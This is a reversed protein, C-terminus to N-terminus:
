YCMDLYIIIQYSSYVQWLGCNCIVVLCYYINCYNQIKNCLNQSWFVMNIYNFLLVFCLVYKVIIDCYNVFMYCVGLM